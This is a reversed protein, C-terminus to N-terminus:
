KFPSSVFNVVKNLFSTSAPAVQWEIFFGSKVRNSTIPSPLTASGSAGSTTGTMTPNLNRWNPDLPAVGTVVLQTTHGQSTVGDVLSTSTTHVWHAVKATGLLIQGNTMDVTEGVQFEGTLTQPIIWFSAGTTDRVNETVQVSFKNPEPQKSVTWSLDGIVIVVDETIPNSTFITVGARRCTIQMIPKYGSTGTLVCFTLDGGSAFVGTSASVGPLLPTIKPATSIPIVPNVTVTTQATHSGTTNTATLTYITTQTPSVSRSNGTVAGIGQDVSLSTADSVSWSLTSAQGSTITAPAAAFSSIAPLPLPPAAAFEYAGITAQSNRAVGTIDYISAAAASIAGIAPSGSKVRLNWLEPSNKWVPDIATLLPDNDCLNGSGLPINATDNFWACDKYGRNGLPDIIRSSVDLNKFVNNRWTDSKMWAVGYASDGPTSYRIIPGARTPSPTGGGYPYCYAGCYHVLVNGEYTNHGLDPMRGTAALCGGNTLDDAIMFVPHGGDSNTPYGLNQSDLVFTNNRILNYNQDSCQWQNTQYATTYDNLTFGQGVTFATNNQFVSKSVGSQITFSKACGYVMNSDIAINTMPGNVHMCVDDARALINGRIITGESNAINSGLYISHGFDGGAKADHIYNHLIQTGHHNYQPFINDTWGGINVHSVTMGHVIGSNRIGRGGGICTKALLCSQHFGLGDITFCSQNGYSTAAGSVPFAAGDYTFDPYEGPYALYLTKATCVGGSLTGPKIQIETTRPYTGGRVVVADGPLMVKIAADIGACAKSADYVFPSAIKACSGAAGVFLVNVPNRGQHTWFAALNGWKTIAESATRVAVDTDDADAGVCGPGVGHKDGDVDVCTVTSAGLGDTPLQGLLGTAFVAASALFLTTKLM